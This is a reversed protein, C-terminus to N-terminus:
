RSPRRHRNRWLYLVRRSVNPHTSGSDDVEHATRILVHDPMAEISQILNEALRESWQLSSTPVVSWDLPIAPLAAQMQLVKITDNLGEEPNDSGGAIYAYFGRLSFGANERHSSDLLHRLQKQVGSDGSSGFPLAREYVEMLHSLTANHGKQKAQLVELMLQNRAENEKGLKLESSMAALWGGGRAGVDDCLFEIGRGMRIWPFVPIRNVAWLAMFPYFPAFGFDVATFSVAALSLASAALAHILYCRTLLPSYFWVHGLEHAVVTELEHEDLLHVIGRNLRVSNLMRFGPLLESRLAYANTEKERTLYVHTQKGDVQLRRCVRQVLAVLSDRTHTGFSIDTRLHQIAKKSEALSYVFPWFMGFFGICAAWAQIPWDVGGSRSIWVALAIFTAIVEFGLILRSQREMEGFKAILSGYDPTTLRRGNPSPLSM